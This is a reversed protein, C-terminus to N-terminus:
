RVPTDENLGATTVVVLLLPLLLPLLKCCEQLSCERAPCVRSSSPRVHFPLNLQLAAFAATGATHSDQSSKTMEMAHKHTCIHRCLSQMQVHRFISSTSAYKRVPDAVVLLPLLLDKFSCVLQSAPQYAYPQRINVPYPTAPAIFQKRQEAACANLETEPM